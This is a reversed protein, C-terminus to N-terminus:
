SAARRVIFPGIADFPVAPPADLASSAPLKLRVRTGVGDPQARCWAGLCCLGDTALRSALGDVPDIGQVPGALDRNALAFTCLGPELTRDLVEVHSALIMSAFTNAWFIAGARRIIDTLRAPTALAIARDAASLAEGDILPALAYRKRLMACLRDQLRPSTMFRGCLDAGLRGGFCAALRTRDAYVSPSAVFTDWASPQASGALGTM